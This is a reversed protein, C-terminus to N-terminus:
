NRQVAENGYVRSLERRTVQLEELKNLRRTDIVMGASVVLVSIASSILYMIYVDTTQPTRVIYYMIYILSYCGFVFLFSSTMMAKGIAKRYFIAIKIQRIFFCACFFLIIALGPAIIITLANRNFGYMAIIIIEFAIFLSMIYKMRKTCQSTPSFYSFFTLLLPVDLLNTGIGFIRRFETGVPIYKQLMMADVFALLYFIGLAIFSQYRYLKFVIIFTIPLLLTATFIFGMIGQLNM